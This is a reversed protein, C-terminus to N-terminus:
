ELLSPRITTRKRFEKDTQSSAFDYNSVLHLTQQNTDCGSNTVAAQPVAHQM